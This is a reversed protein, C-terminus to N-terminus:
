VRSKHIKTCGNEKERSLDNKLYYFNSKLLSIDLDAHLM